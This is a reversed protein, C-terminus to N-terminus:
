GGRQKEQEQGGQLEMVFDYRDGRYHARAHEIPRGAATWSVRETAILAAGPAIDLLAALEADANVARLHRIARHPRLGRAALLAYLSADTVADLTLDPALTAPLTSDEIALPEGSATRLRRLRIVGETPSLALTMAEQPTPYGREFRLVRAGPILGRSRIDDSFGTLLGLPRSALGSAAQQNSHQVSDESLGVQGASSVESSLVDNSSVFTGSGHRRVLLGREALVALAQRVTVRSIGLTHALEREAPLASGRSIAGAEIGQELGHAVQVYVPTASDADLPIAWPLAATM